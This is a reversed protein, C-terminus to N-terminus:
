FLLTITLVKGEINDYMYHCGPSPLLGLNQLSCSNAAPMRKILDDQSESVAGQGVISDLIHKNFVFQLLFKSPRNEFPTIPGPSSLVTSRQKGNSLRRDTSPTRIVCSPSLTCATYQSTSIDSQRVPTQLLKDKSMITPSFKSSSLTFMGSM